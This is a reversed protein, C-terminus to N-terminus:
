RGATEPWHPPAYGFTRAGKMCVFCVDGLSPDDHYVASDRQFYRGCYTRQSRPSTMHWLLARPEPRFMVWQTGTETM